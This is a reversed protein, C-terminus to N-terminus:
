IIKNTDKRKIKMYGDVIRKVQKEKRSVMNAIQSVNYGKNYLDYVRRMIPRRIDEKPLRLKSIEGPSINHYYAILLVDYPNIKAGRYIDCVYYYTFPKHHLDKYFLSIDKTLKLINKKTCANDVCQSRILKSSLYDSVVVDNNIEIPSNFVDYIYKIVFYNIDSKLIKGEEIPELQELTFFTVDSDKDNPIKTDILRVNHIPCRDFEYIQHEVHFYCEGYLNRDEKVCHPCYRLFYNKRNSLIHLRKSILEKNKVGLRYTEKREEVNIFRSYYKFLTHNLLLEDFGITENVLKKFDRNFLNIFNFDIREFQFLFIEKTFYRHFIFGSQAYMRGLWSCVTEHPYIVPVRKIM